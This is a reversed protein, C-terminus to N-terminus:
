LVINSFASIFFLSMFLAFYILSVSFFNFTPAGAAHLIRNAIGEGEQIVALLIHETGIYNTQLKNSFMGSLELIQKSRPSFPVDETIPDGQGEIEVIRSELYEETIGAEKLVKAAVGEGEELLGFLLHESGVINHGLRKSFEMALDIAKKARQTFKNFNM